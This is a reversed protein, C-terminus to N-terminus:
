GHGLAKKLQRVTHNSITKVVESAAAEIKRYRDLTLELRRLRAMENSTSRNDRHTYIYREDGPKIEYFYQQRGCPRLLTVDYVDKSMGSLQMESPEDIITIETRGGIRDGQHHQPPLDGKRRNHVVYFLDLAISVDDFLLVFKNMEKAQDQDM